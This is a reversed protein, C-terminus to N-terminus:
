RTEGSMLRRPERGVKDAAALAVHRSNGWDNLQLFRYPQRSLRLRGSLWGEKENRECVLEISSQLAPKAPAPIIRDDEDFDNRSTEIWQTPNSM